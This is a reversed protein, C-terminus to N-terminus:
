RADLEGICLQEPHRQDQRDTRTAERGAADLDAIARRALALDARDFLRLGEQPLAGTGDTGDAAMSVVNGCAPACRIAVGPGAQCRRRRTIASATPEIMRWAQPVDGEGVLGGPCTEARGVAPESGTLGPGIAAGEADVAPEAGVGPEANAPGVPEGANGLEAPPGVTDASAPAADAQM